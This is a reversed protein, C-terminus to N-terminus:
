KIMMILLVMLLLRDYSTTLAVRGAAVTMFNIVMAAPVIPYRFHTNDLISSNVLNCSFPFALLSTLIRRVLNM